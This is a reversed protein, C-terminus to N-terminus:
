GGMRTAWCSGRDPKEFGSEGDGNGGCFGEGEGGDEADRELDVVKGLLDASTTSEM